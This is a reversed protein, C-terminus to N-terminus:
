RNKQVGIVRGPTGLLSAGGGRSARMQRSRELGAERKAAARKAKEAPKREAQKQKAARQAKEAEKLAARRAESGRGIKEKPQNYWNLGFRREMEREYAANGAITRGATAERKAAKRAGRSARRQSERAAPTKKKAREAIERKETATQTSPRSGPVILKLDPSVKRVVTKTMPNQVTYKPKPKAVPKRKIAM